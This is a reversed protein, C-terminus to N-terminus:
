LAEEDDEGKLWSLWLDPRWITGPGPYGTITPQASSRTRGQARPPAGSGPVPAANM